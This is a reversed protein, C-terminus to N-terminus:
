PLGETDLLKRKWNHFDHAGVPYDDYNSMWETNCDARTFEVGYTCTPFQDTAMGKDCHYCNYSQESLQSSFQSSSLYDDGESETPHHFGGYIHGVAVNHPQPQTDIDTEPQTEFVFVQLYWQTQPVMDDETEPVVV